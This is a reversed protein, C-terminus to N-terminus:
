GHVYIVHMRIGFIRVYMRAHMCLDFVYVRM